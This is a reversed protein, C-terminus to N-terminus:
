KETPEKELNELNRTIVARGRWSYAREAFEADTMNKVDSSTLFPTLNGRFFKINTFHEEKIARKTHPCALQCIDCGWATGNERLMKLEEETLEGKRQSIESLCFEFKGDKFGPCARLCAGCDECRKIEGARCAIKMDTIIEGIFVLSSYKETILLGNKGVVGLGAKAAANIEAIPSHDAFGAFKNNPFAEALKKTVRASFEKFFIHYDRPTAYLSINRKEPFGACYPMVLMIATGDGDSIGARELLYARKIECDSLPIPAFYEIGEARIANEIIEDM